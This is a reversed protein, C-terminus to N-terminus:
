TILDPTVAGGILDRAHHEDGFLGSREAFEQQFREVIIDVTANPVSGLKAAAVTVERLEDPSFHRLLAQATAREMALLLAAARQPGPLTYPLAVAGGSM